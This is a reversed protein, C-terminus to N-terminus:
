AASHKAQDKSDISQKTNLTSGCYRCVIAAKRISEACFPCPILDPEAVHPSISLGSRTDVKSGRKFLLIITGILAFLCGILIANQQDRLLGLNHVRGEGLSTSVTTDMVCGAFISACGIALLLWGIIKM